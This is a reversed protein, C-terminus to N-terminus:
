EKIIKTRFIQNRNELIRIFYIGDPHDSLNLETTDNKIDRILILEGIVNYVQIQLGAKAKVTVAGSSPNPYIIIGTASSASAVDIGTCVFVQILKNVSNSCGTIADTYAYTVTYVGAAAPPIFSAGSVSVGSYTGGSPSGSLSISAGSVCTTNSSSTLTLGPLANVNINITETTKCNNLDTGTVSYTTAITPSVIVPNSTAGTSWSYTNAGSANLNVTSGSCVLSASSAVTLTPNSNVTINITQTSTGPCGASTGTLSYTTSVGPSVVISPLITGTMASTWTYSTAGSATLTATSGSCIATSTAAVSVSPITNVTVTVPTRPSLACTSDQVYYTLTSTLTPTVFINGSGVNSGGTPVTFWSINGTGGASLTTTNGSCITLNAPLSNNTPALPANCYTYKAIFGASYAITSLYSTGANVDFDVQNNFVGGYYMDGKNNLTVCSASDLWINGVPYAFVFNGSSNYKAYFIDYDGATGLTYSSTSPDFDANASKFYGTIYSNGSQDLTISTAGDDSSGGMKKAYIFNGNSDYKSNFADGNSGVLTATSPGPDFDVVGNFKGAIYINNANDTAISNGAENLTGGIRQAFLYNGSNDYKAFFMDINGASTLNVVGPGPDFDATGQFAGTLYFNGANDITMGNPQMTGSGFRQALIFNGANDYKAIFISTGGGSSLLASGPGPDFDMNFSQFFGCLYINGAADVVIKQGAEDATGGIKNAFVLNGAADYKAFYVDNLGASSLNFVGPGPDFDITGSQFGGTIYMNGAADYYVSHGKDSSTGGISKIYIFNGSPHIKAFVIDNNGKSVLNESISGSFTGIAYLVGSSDTKLDNISSTATFDNGFFNGARVYNGSVDYKAFFGSNALGNLLASSPGPDFDVNPGYFYGGTHITGSNDLAVSRCYEDAAGSINKALIFNGNNDYKAFFADRSGTLSLTAVGPGPNFDVGLSSYFGGICLNGTSDLAANYVEEQNLSAISKAHVINGLSDYKAFYIDNASGSPVTYTGPGPDFDTVNGGFSGALYMNCRKDVAIFRPFDASNTGMAKALLYNGSSDYKALFIDPDSWPSSLTQTGPGPDFDISSTSITGTIYANCYKDMAIDWAKENNPSGIRKAFKLVGNANYKALFIEDGGASSLNYLGPGPDFDVTIQFYGTIYLSGKSDVALALVEENGGSGLRFGFVYNGNIDYKCFFGDYAGSYGSTVLGPGPDLDINGQFNGGIFINQNADVAISLGQGSGGLSSLGKAFVINGNPDYKAFYIGGGTALNYLGPGPDFDVTGFYSGTVYTNGAADTKMDMVNSSGTAGPGIAWNHLLNQANEAFPLFLIAFFLFPKQFM